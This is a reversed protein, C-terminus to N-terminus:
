PQPPRYVRILQSELTAQNGIAAVIRQALGCPDGDDRTCAIIDARQSNHLHLRVFDRRNHTVIARGIATAQALAVADPIRRNGVGATQATIIDVGLLILEDVLAQPIDEDARLAVM